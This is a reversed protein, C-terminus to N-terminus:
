RKRYKKKRLLKKLRREETYNKAAQGAKDKIKPDAGAELLKSIIAPNKSEMAYMLATKGEEDQLNVKVKQKLLFKIESLFNYKAAYMLITRDKENQYDYQAAVSYEPDEKNEYGDYYIDRIARFQALKLKYKNNRLHDYYELIDSIREGCPDDMFFFPEKIKGDSKTVMYYVAEKYDDNCYFGYAHAASSFFTSEDEGAKYLVETVNQGDEIAKIIDANRMKDIEALKEEKYIEQAQLSTTTVLCLLLVLYKSYTM